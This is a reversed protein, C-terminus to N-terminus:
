CPSCVMIKETTCKKPSKETIKNQLVSESRSFNAIKRKLEIRHLDTRTLILCNIVICFERKIENHYFVVERTLTYIIEKTRM